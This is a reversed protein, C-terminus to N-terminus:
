RTTTVAIKITNNNFLTIEFYAATNSKLIIFLFAFLISLAFNIVRMIDGMSLSRNTKILKKM